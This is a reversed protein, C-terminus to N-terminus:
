FGGHLFKIIWFTIASALAACPITVFWALVIRGAVKWKVGAANGTLGVGVIAGAVTHTTSVPIGMHTAFFLTSSAALEACFGNVPRLKTLKMGMTRVIRWGGMATGIGMAIYCGYIILSSSVENVHLTKDPAFTGYAILVAVIIGMTKQADNGGHGISNLAASFLQAKRFLRDVSHPRWRRFSWYVLLMIFFAITLGLIPAMPIFAMTETVKHWNIISAGKYAMGAGALGGILAHSSSTPLGWWWTILDWIIAGLLGALIVYIFAQDKPDIIIIKSITNAVRPTFVFMAVVNFFTAWIIAQRPTLVKTSVITAISNAADHFGNIVDFILASAITFIVVYLLFNDM